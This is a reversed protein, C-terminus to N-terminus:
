KTLSMLPFSLGTWAIRDGDPSFAVGHVWGGNNNFYEGCLTNLPLKDGWPSPAPKEDVGKIYASFV